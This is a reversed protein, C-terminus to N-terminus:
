NDQTIWVFCFQSQNAKIYTKHHQASQFQKKFFYFCSSYSSVTTFVLLIIEWHTKGELKQVLKKKTKMQSFIFLTFLIIPSHGKFICSFHYIHTSHQSHIYDYKISKLFEWLTRNFKEISNRLRTQKKATLTSKKIYIISMEVSLPWKKWDQYSFCLSVVLCSSFKGDVVIKSSAVCHISSFIILVM